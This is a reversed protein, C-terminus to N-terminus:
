DVPKLYKWIIEIDVEGGYSVEAKSIRGWRQRSAGEGTVTVTEGAPISATRGAGIVIGEIDETVIADFPMERNFEAPRSAPYSASRLFTVNEKDTIQYTTNRYEVYFYGSQEELVTVETGRELSKYADYGNFNKLPVTAALSALFPFASEGTATRSAVTRPRIEYKTDLLSGQRAFNHPYNNVTVYLWEGTTDNVISLIIANEWDVGRRMVEGRESWLDSDKASLFRDFLYHPTIAKATEIQAANPTRRSNYKDEFRDFNGNSFHYLGALYNNPLKGNKIDVATTNEQGNHRVSAGKDGFGIGYELYSGIYKQQAEELTSRIQAPPIPSAKALKTNYENKYYNNNFNGQSYAAFLFGSVLLIPTLIMVPFGSKIFSPRDSERIYEIIYRIPLYILKIAQIAVGVFIMIVALIFKLMGSEVGGDSSVVRGTGAEVTVNEYDRWFRLPSGGLLWMKLQVPASIIIFALLQNLFSLKVSALGDWYTLLSIGLIFLANGIVMDRYLLGLLSTPFIFDKIGGQNGNSM